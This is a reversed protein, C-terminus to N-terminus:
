RLGNVISQAEKEIIASIEGDIRGQSLPELVDAAHFARMKSLFTTQFDDVQSIDLDKLLGKTGCYLIAIQEGVPMPSYQPQVLLVNNKRGKDLAM